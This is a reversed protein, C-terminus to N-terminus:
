GEARFEILCDEALAAFFAKAANEGRLDARRNGCCGISWTRRRGRGPALAVSPALSEMELIALNTFVEFNCGRDPYRSRRTM